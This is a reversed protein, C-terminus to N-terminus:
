LRLELSRSSQACGLVLCSTSSILAPASPCPSSANGTTFGVDIAMFQELIQESLPAMLRDAARSVLPQRRRYRYLRNIKSHTFFTVAHADPARM